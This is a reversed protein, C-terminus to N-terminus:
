LNPSVKWKDISFIEWFVLRRRQIYKSDMNWHAPDRDLDSMLYDM